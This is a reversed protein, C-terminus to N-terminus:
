LDCQPVRGDEVLLPIEKGSKGLYLRERLEPAIRMNGDDILRLARRLNDSVSLLVLVADEDATHYLGEVVILFSIKGGGGPLERNSELNLIKDQVVQLLALIKILGIKLALERAETNKNKIEEDNGTDLTEFRRKNQELAYIKSILNLLSDFDVVSENLRPTAALSIRTSIDFTMLSAATKMETTFKPFPSEKIISSDVKPLVTGNLKEKYFTLAGSLLDKYIIDREDDPLIEYDILSKINGYGLEEILPLVNNRFYDDAGAEGRQSRGLDIFTMNGVIEILKKSVEPTLIERKQESRIIYVSDISKATEIKKSIENISLSLSRAPEAQPINYVAPTTM